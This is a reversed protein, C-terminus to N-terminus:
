IWEVMKNYILKRYRRINGQVSEENMERKGGEQGEAVGGIEMRWKRNMKREESGGRNPFVKKFVKKSVSHTTFM